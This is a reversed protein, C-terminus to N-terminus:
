CVQFNKVSRSFETDPEQGPPYMLDDPTMNRFMAKMVLMKNVRARAIADLVDNRLQCLSQFNLRCVLDNGFVISTM